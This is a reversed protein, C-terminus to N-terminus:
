SELRDDITLTMSCRLRYWEGTPLAMPQRNLLKCLRRWAPPVDAGAQALETSSSLDLNRHGTPFAVEVDTLKYRGTVWAPPLQRRRGTRPELSNFALFGNNMVTQAFSRRFEPLLFDSQAWPSGSEVDPLQLLDDMRTFEAETASDPCDISFLCMALRLAPAIPPQIRLARIGRWTSSATSGAERGNMAVIRDAIRGACFHALHKDYGLLERGVVKSWPNDVFISPVFIASFAGSRHRRRGASWYACRSNM